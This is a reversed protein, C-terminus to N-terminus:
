NVRWERLMEPGQPHISDNNWTIERIGASVKTFLAKILSEEFEETQPHWSNEAPVRVSITVISVM